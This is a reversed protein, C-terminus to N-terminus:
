PQFYSDLISFLEESLKRHEVLMHLPAKALAGAPSELETDEWTEILRGVEEAPLAVLEAIKQFVAARKEDVEMYRSRLPEPLDAPIAFAM